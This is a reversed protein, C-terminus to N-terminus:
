GKGWRYRVLLVGSVLGICIFLIMSLNNIKPALFYMFNAFMLNVVAFDALYNNKKIFFVAVLDFIFSYLVLGVALFVYGGDSFFPEIATGVNTPYPSYEINLIVSPNVDSFGLFYAIKYAWNFVSVVGQDNYIQGELLGSLYSFGAGLYLYFDGFLWVNTNDYLHGYTKGTVLGYIVFFIIGIVVFWITVLKGKSKNKNIIIFGAMIMFLIWIIRTKDAFLLNGGIQVILLFYSVLSREKNTITLFIALWGFYSLQIGITHIDKTVMRIEMPNSLIQYVDLLSILYIAERVFLYVGILGILHMILISQHSISDKVQYIKKVKLGFVKNSSYFLIMQLIIVIDLAMSDHNWGLPNFLFVSYAVFLSWFGYYSPLQNTLL